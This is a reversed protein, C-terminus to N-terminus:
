CWVKAEKCTAPLCLCRGKGSFCSFCGSSPSTPKGKRELKKSKLKRINQNFNRVTWAGGFEKRSKEFEKKDISGGHDKDMLEFIEHLQEDTLPEESHGAENKRIYSAFENYTITGSHDIDISDFLYKEHIHAKKSSMISTSPISPPKQKRAAQRVGEDKLLEPNNHPLAFHFVHM